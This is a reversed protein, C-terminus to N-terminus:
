TTTGGPSPGPTAQRFTQCKTQFDIAQQGQFNLIPTREVRRPKTYKYATFVDKGKASSLFTQWDTKKAQRIAHFYSNRSQQFARWEQECRTAKWKRKTQHMHQRQSTLDDNWWPKSRPSPRLLPISEAAAQLLTDRLITAAQELGPDSAQHLNDEMQQLADKALHNLTTNFLTWDAKKFNFRQSIPHTVTEELPATTIDFRIVEHDSGTTAEDDVAWSTMSEASTPTAFTLDLISTGTGNRYHYTPIDEKNILQLRHTDTWNIITEARKPTKVSSNWWQHHANFDGVIIARDPLPIQHICREITREDNDPSQSKENYLNILLIPPTSSTSLTLCQADPDNSLDNRPTLSIHAATKSLFTAVRPRIHAPSPPLISTYSPHSLTNWTNSNKDFRVWPEQVLIIDTTKHALHLLTQMVNTSKATNHQILRITHPFIRVSHSSTQHTGHSLPQACM